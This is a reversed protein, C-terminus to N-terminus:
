IFGKLNGSYGKVLYDDGLSEVSFISVEKEFSYGRLMDIGSGFFKPAYFLYYKDVLNADILASALISGGECMVSFIGMEQRLRVLIEELDLVGSRDSVPLLSVGLGKLISSKHSFSSKKSTVIILDKAREKVLRSDIPIKLERDVVIAKPQVDTVVFRVNLLPDDKLVTKIGVMVANHFGRLRHVFKRAMEGTIWKSSGDNRAIKGNLTLALKISCFARDTKLLVYFDDILEFCSKECMCGSVSIGAKKLTDIGGSAVSNPDKIGIVVKKIGAEVIRKACPPTKGYHNCPELTVYITSGEADKGAKEIAMVEAHPAGYGEHYGSAIVKGDKAIVAGVAPNPLTQGKGRYAEEIALEMFVRDDTV